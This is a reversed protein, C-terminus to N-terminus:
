KGPPTVKPAKEIQELRRRVPAPLKARQDPTNIPGEFVVKPEKIINRATLTKNGKPDTVLRLGYEKDRFEQILTGDKEHRFVVNGERRDQM